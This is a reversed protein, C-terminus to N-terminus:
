HEQVSRVDCTASLLQWFSVVAGQTEEQEASTMLLNHWHLSWLMLYTVTARGVRHNNRLLTVGSKLFVRAFLLLSSVVQTSAKGEEALVEPSPYLLMVLISEGSNSEVDKMLVEHLYPLRTLVSAM